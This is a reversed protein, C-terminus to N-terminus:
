AKRWEPPLSNKCKRRGPTLADVQEQLREVQQALLMVLQPSSDGAIRASPAPVSQWQALYRRSRRLLDGTDDNVYPQRKMSKREPTQTTRLGRSSLYQVLAAKRELALAMDADEALVDLTAAIADLADQSNLKADKAIVLDTVACHYIKGRRRRLIAALVSLLSRWM